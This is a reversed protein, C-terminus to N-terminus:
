KIAKPEEEIALSITNSRIPMADARVTELFMEVVSGAIGYPVVARVECIGASSDPTISTIPQFQSGFYILPLSRLSNETCNIGTAYLSITEGAVAPTGDVEFRPLAALGRTHLVIGQGKGSGNASFLGPATEQMSTIWDASVQGAVEASLALPTGASLSPCLFDVRGATAALVPAPQGNVLVRLGDALATQQDDAAFTGLLTARANPSCAAPADAGAGNRLGTIVPQNGIVHIVVNKTTKRGALDVATFTTTTNGLDSDAPTWAFNGTSPDFTAGLPLGSISVPLAQDQADVATALFSM